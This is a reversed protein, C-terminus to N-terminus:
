ILKALTEKTIIATDPKTPNLEVRINKEYIAKKSKPSPKYPAFLDDVIRLKEDTIIPSSSNQSGGVVERYPDLTLDDLSEDYIANQFVEINKENSASYDDISDERIVSFINEEMHAVIKDTNIPTTYLRNSVESRFMSSPVVGLITEIILADLKEWYEISLGIEKGITTVEDKIVDSYIFDQATESLKSYLEDLEKESYESYKKM